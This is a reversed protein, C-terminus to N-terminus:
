VMVMNASAITVTVISGRVTAMVTNGARGAIFTYIIYPTLPEFRATEPTILPFSIHRSSKDLTSKPSPKSM